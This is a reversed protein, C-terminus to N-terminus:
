ACQKRQVAGVNAQLFLPVRHDDDGVITLDDPDWRGDELAGARYIDGIEWEVDLDAFHLETRPCVIPKFEVDVEVLVLVVHIYGFIHRAIFPRQDFLRGNPVDKVVFAENFRVKVQGEEELDFSNGGEVVVYDNQRANQEGEQREDDEPQWRLGWRLDHETLSKQSVKSHLIVHIIQNISYM